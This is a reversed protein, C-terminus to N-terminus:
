SACGENRNSYCFFKMAAKKQRRFAICNECQKRWRWTSVLDSGTTWCTIVHKFPWMVRCTVNEFRMGHVLETSGSCDQTTPDKCAAAGIYGEAMAFDNWLDVSVMAVVVVVEEFSKVRSRQKAKADITEADITEADADWHLHVAFLLPVPFLITDHVALFPLTELTFTLPSSRLTFSNRSQKLLFMGSATSVLSQRGHISAPRARM